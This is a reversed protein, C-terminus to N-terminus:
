YLSDSKLFLGRLTTYEGNGFLYPERFCAQWHLRWNADGGVWGQAKALAAFNAKPSRNQDIKFDTGHSWVRILALQGASSEM